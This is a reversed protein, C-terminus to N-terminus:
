AAELFLDHQGRRQAETPPASGEGALTAEGRTLDVRITTHAGVVLDGFYQVHQSQRFSLGSLLFARCVANLRSRTTATAWGCMNLELTNAGPDFRAIRHGHLTLVAAGDELFVKTNRQSRKRCSRLAWAADTSIRSM